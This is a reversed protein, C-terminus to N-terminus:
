EGRVGKYKGGSVKNSLIRGTDADRKAFLGTKSNKFQSRNTVQGNRHGDGIKGNKAM